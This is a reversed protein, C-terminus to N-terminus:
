LRSYKSLDDSQQKKFKIGFLILFKKKNKLCVHVCAFPFFVSKILCPIGGIKSNFINDM